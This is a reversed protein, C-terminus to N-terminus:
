LSVACHLAPPPVPLTPSCAPSSQLQAVPPVSLPWCATTSAFKSIRAPPSKHRHQVLSPLRRARHSGPGRGVRSGRHREVKRKLRWPDLRWGEPRARWALPDASRPCHCSGEIVMSRALRGPSLPASLGRLRRGYRAPRGEPEPVKRRWRPLERSPLNMPAYSSTSSAKATGIM